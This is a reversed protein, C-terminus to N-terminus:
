IVDVDNRKNFSHVKRDEHDSSNNSSNVDDSSNDSNVHEYNENGGDETINHGKTNQNEVISNVSLNQGTKNGQKIVSTRAM